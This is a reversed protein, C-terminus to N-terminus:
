IINVRLPAVAGAAADREFYCNVASARSTDADNRWGGPRHVGNATHRLYAQQNRTVAVEVLVWIRGQKLISFAEGAEVDYPSPARVHHHQRVVVGGFTAVSALASSPLAYRKDATADYILGQGFKLHAASAAATPTAVTVDGDGATTAVSTLPTDLYIGSGAAQEIQTAQIQNTSVAAFSFLSAAGANQQLDSLVADRAETPTDEGAALTTNVVHGGVTTAVTDAAAWTDAFTLTVVKATGKQATVGTVIDRIGSGYLQGPLAVAPDGYTEQPIQMPAM